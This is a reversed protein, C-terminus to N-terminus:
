APPTITLHLPIQTLLDRAGSEARAICRLAEPDDGYRERMAALKRQWARVEDATSFMSVPPDLFLIM